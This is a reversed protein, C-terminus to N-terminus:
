CRENVYDRESCEENNSPGEVDPAKRHAHMPVSVFPQFHALPGHGDPKPVAFLLACTLVVALTWAAVVDRWMRGGSRHRPHAGIMRSMMTASPMSVMKKM